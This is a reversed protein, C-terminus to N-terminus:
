RAMTMNQLEVYNGLKKEVMQKRSASRLPPVGAELNLALGM